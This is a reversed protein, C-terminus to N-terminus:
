LYKPESYGVFNYCICACGGSATKIILVCTHARAHVCVYVRTSESKQIWQLGPTHLISCIKQVIYNM